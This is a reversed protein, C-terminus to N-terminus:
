DRGEYYHAAPRIGTVEEEGFISALVKHVRPAVTKGGSEGREVLM